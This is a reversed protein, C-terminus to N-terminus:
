FKRPLDNFSVQDGQKERQIITALIRDGEPIFEQYKYKGINIQPQSLIKHLGVKQENTSGCDIIDRARNGQNDTITLSAGHSVLLEVIEQRSNGVAYMLATKGDAAQTDIAAGSDLLHMMVELKHQVPRADQIGLIASKMLPTKGNQDPLNPDAGNLLFLKVTNPLGWLIAVELATRGLSDRLNPDAGYQLLLRLCESKATIRYSTKPHDGIKQFPLTFNVKSFALFILPERNQGVIRLNPDLGRNLLKAVTRVDDSAIATALDLEQKRSAAHQKAM